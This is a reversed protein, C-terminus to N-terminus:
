SQRDLRIEVAGLLTAPEARRARAGLFDARPYLGFRPQCGGCAHRVVLEDGLQRRILVLGVPQADNWGGLARREDRAQRYAAEVADAGDGRALHLRETDAGAGIQARLGAGKEVGM